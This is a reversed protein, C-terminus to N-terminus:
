RSWKSEREKIEIYSFGSAESSVSSVPNLTSVGFAANGPSLPSKGLSAVNRGYIVRRSYRSSGCKLGSYNSLWNEPTGGCIRKARALRRVGLKINLRPRQLQEDSKRSVGVTAVGRRIQFLGIDGKGSDANVRCSSEAQMVKIAIDPEVGYYNASAIVLPILAACNM